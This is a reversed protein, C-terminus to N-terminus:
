LLADGHCAARLLAFFIFLVIMTFTTQISYLFRKLNIFPLTLPLTFQNISNLDSDRACVIYAVALPIRTHGAGNGNMKWKKLDVNLRKYVIERKEPECLVRQTGMINKTHSIVTGFVREKEEM